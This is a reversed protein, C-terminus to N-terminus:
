EGYREFLELLRGYAEKIKEPLDDVGVVELRPNQIHDHYGFVTEYFQEEKEIATEVIKSSIRVCYVCDDGNDASLSGDANVTYAIAYAAAGNDDYCVIDKHSPFPPLKPKTWTFCQRECEPARPCKGQCFTKNLLNDRLKQHDIDTLVMDGKFRACGQWDEDFEKLSADDAARRKEITIRSGANFKVKYRKCFLRAKDLAGQYTKALYSEEYANPESKIKVEFFCDPESEAFCKYKKEEFAVCRRAQKRIFADDTGTGILRLLELRKAFDPAHKYALLLLDFDVVRFRSARIANQLSKSCTAKVIINEIEKKL